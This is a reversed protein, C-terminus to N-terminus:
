PLNREFHQDVNQYRFFMFLRLLRWSSKIVKIVVTNKRSSKLSGFALRSSEINLQIFTREFNQGFEGELLHEKERQIGPIDRGAKQRVFNVVTKRTYCFSFFNNM